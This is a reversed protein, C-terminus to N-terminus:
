DTNAALSYCIIEKDNRVYIRQNAFAPHTWVVKRGFASNTPEIIQAKDIERYESRTLRAIVLEGKENFIFYRNGNRVLFATGSGANPGGTVPKATQWLRKGTKVDVATLQGNQTVGYLTEGDFLPTM